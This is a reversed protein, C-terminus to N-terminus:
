GLEAIARVVEGRASLAIVVAAVAILVALKLRITQLAHEHELDAVKLTTRRLEGTLVDIRQSPTPARKVPRKPETM